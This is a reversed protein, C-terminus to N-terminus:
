SGALGLGLLLVVAGLTANIKLLLFWRKWHALLPEPWAQVDQTTQATLSAIEPAYKFAQLCHHFIMALFLFLKIALISYYLSGFQFGGEAGRFILNFFGSILLL